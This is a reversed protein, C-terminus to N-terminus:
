AHTGETAAACWKAFAALRDQNFKDWAPQEKHLQKGKLSLVQVKVDELSVEGLGRSKFGGLRAFGQALLELGQLVAGEQADDLENLVLRLGYRTGAPVVEYDYKRKEFARGSDRDIAVGDRREVTVDDLPLADGIVVHSALSPGGFIRCATCADQAISAQLAAAQEVAPRPDKMVGAARKRALCAGDGIPDCTRMPVARLIAEVQSRLVGKISAGPLIPRGRGDRLVPLRSTLPDLDKGAGIRLGTQCVLAGSITVRRQFTDFFLSM